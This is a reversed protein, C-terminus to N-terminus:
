LISIANYLRNLSMTIKSSPYIKYQLALLITAFICRVTRKKSIRYCALGEALLLHDDEKAFNAVVISSAVTISILLYNNSVTPM